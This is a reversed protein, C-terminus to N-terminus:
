RCDRKAPRARTRGGFRESLRDCSTTEANRADGTSIGASTSPLTITRTSSSGRSPYRVGRAPEPDAAAAVCRRGRGLLLVRRVRRDRANREQLLPRRAGRARDRLTAASRRAHGVANGGPEFILKLRRSVSWAQDIDPRSDDRRDLATRRLSRGQASTSPCGYLASVLPAIPRAGMQRDSRSSHAHRRFAVPAVAPPRREALRQKLLQLV